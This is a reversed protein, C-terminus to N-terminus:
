PKAECYFKRQDGASGSSLESANADFYAYVQDVGTQPQGGAWPPQSLSQVENATNMWHWTLSIDRQLGVWGSSDQFASKFVDRKQATDLIAIHWVGTAGTDSGCTAFAGTPTDTDCLVACGTSLQKPMVGCPTAPCGSGSDVGSGGACQATTSNRCFGGMCSTGDPCAGNAGCRFQCEKLSPDYCGSALAVLCALVRM